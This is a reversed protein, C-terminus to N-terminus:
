SVCGGLRDQACRAPRLDGRQARVCALIRDADALTLALPKEVLVAKGHELAQIVAEVHEGESTSVVVATVEPHSIVELNDGSWADATVTEAIM